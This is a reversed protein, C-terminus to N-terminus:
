FGRKVLRNMLSIVTQVKWDKSEGLKEVVNNATVPLDSTWVAKMVEFEADPLKKLSEM